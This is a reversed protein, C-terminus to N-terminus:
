KIINISEGNDYTYILVGTTEDNVEQGLLNTVKILKYDTEERNDITIIDFYEYKGDFDTQKLRYYNITRTYSDDTSQYSMTYNITGQGNVTKIEIFNVGDISRELTYYNNNYESGVVWKLENYRIKKIGTFSILHIPLAGAGYEYAGIDINSDRTAYDIDDTPAGTSTGTNICGSSGSLTYDDNTADTFQPNIVLPSTNTTISNIESSSGYACKTLTITSTNNYIDNYTTGTNSYVITNKISMNCSSLALIGGTGNSVNGNKTVTCNTISMTSNSSMGVIVGHGDTNGNEYFLCNIIALTRSASVSYFLATGYNGSATNNSYFKCYSITSNSLHALELSIAGGYYEANCNKFTCNTVTIAEAAYIAGGRHQLSATRTDCNDFYCDSVTLGTAGAIVKIGGGGNPTGGDSNKYDKIILRNITINDNNTNNILLWRSTSAADFISTPVGSSSTGLITFGEDDTGVTIGTETYTGAAVNIIDGSALNYTSFVSALTLKPTGSTLGAAADSGTTSIYYNTAYLNTFVIVFLILLINKM